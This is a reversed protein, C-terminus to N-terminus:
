LKPFFCPLRVSSPLASFSFSGCLGNTDSGLFHQLRLCKLLAPCQCEPELPGPLPSPSATHFCGSPSPLLADCDLSHQLLGPFVCGMSCWHRQWLSQTSGVGGLSDSGSGLARCDPAAQAVVERHTRAVTLPGAVLCQSCARLM